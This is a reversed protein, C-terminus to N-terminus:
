LFRELLKRSARDLAASDAIAFCLGDASTVLLQPHGSRLRRIDEEGKLVLTTEGRNTLVRWTSPTSFSSVQLLRQIEPMFTRASLEEELLSRQAAPLKHLQELWLVEQGNVNVLAVGDDPASLPFARVPVVGLHQQGDACTLLLRGFPTRELHFEPAAM